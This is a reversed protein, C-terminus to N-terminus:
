RLVYEELEKRLRQRAAHLRSMVTGVPIELVAAIERYKLGEYVQLILVTRLADPLSDLAARVVPALEASVVAVEPGDGVAPWDHVPEDLQVTEVGGRERHRLVVNVAIRYLWTFEGAGGRFQDMSAFARLGVEQTLDDALDPDGALRATLRWIRPGHAAWLREWRLRRERERGAALWGEIREALAMRNEPEEQM